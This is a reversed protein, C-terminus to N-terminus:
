VIGKTQWKRSRWRFFMIGGRLLEDLATGMVIGPLGLGLVIGLVYGSLAGVGWMSFLGVVVPFRVDGAARLSSIIILNFARGIESFIFILFVTQGVRIIEPNDTFLSLIPVALLYCIVAGVMSVLTAIKLYRFCRHYIEEFRKAGMLQGIIIQSGQTLAITFLFVFMNINRVYVRTALAHTGMTTVLMTLFLQYGAYSVNEGAAPLGIRLIQKVYKFPFKKTSLGSFINGSRKFLITLALIMAILKSLVSVWAVGYVGLVPFGMWGFIVIGNGVVNLINMVITVRLTDKTYGYSRLIASVSALGGQIFVFAGVLRLFMEAESRVRPAMEMSSLLGEHFFFFLGSILMGLALTCILAAGSVIRAEKHKKAGIYQSIIVSAGASVFGFTVISFQLFQNAVGVAAVSDDSYQSLMFVDMNGMLMLLLLEFFIPWTLALISLEKVPSESLTLKKTLM